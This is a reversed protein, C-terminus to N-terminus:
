LYKPLSNDSWSRRYIIYEFIAKELKEHEHLDSFHQILHNLSVVHTIRRVSLTSRLGFLKASVLENNEAYSTQCQLCSCVLIEDTRYFPTKAENSTMFNRFALELCEEQNYSEDDRKEAELFTGKCTM